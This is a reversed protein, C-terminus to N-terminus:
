SDPMKAEQETQQNGYYQELKDISRLRPNHVRGAAFSVIWHYNVGTKLAVDMFKGRDQQLRERITEVRNAITM